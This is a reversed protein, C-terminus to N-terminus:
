GIVTGLLIEDGEETVRDYGLQEVLTITMPTSKESLRSRRSIDKMSSEELEPKIGIGIM